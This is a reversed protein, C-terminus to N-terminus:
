RCSCTSSRIMIGILRGCILVISMIYYGVFSVLVCYMVLQTEVVCNRVCGNTATQRFPEESNPRHVTLDM